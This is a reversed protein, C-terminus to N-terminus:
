ICSRGVQNNYINIVRIMRKPRKSQPDLKQIELLMFYPHKILDTRYDIVIKDVINNRVTTILRM